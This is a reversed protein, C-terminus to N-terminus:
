VPLSRFQSPTTHQDKKFFSIFYNPDEFGLDYAIEKVSLTTSVLLYKAEIILRHVITQKATRGTVKKVIHNLNNPHTHLADAYFQVDRHETVHIEILENFKKLIDLHGSIGESPCKGTFFRDCLILLELIKLAIMQKREEFDGNCEEIIKEFIGTIEDAQTESLAVFPSLSQQLVRKSNLLKYSFAQRLFFDATFSIFYGCPQSTYTAAHIVRQPVVVLTNDSITFSLNGVTRKGSGKKVFVIYFDSRRFPPIIGNTKPYLDELRVLSFSHRNILITDLDIVHDKVKKSFASQLDNLLHPDQM